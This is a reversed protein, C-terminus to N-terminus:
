FLVSVIVYLQHRQRLMGGILGPPILVRSKVARGGPISCRRIQLFEDIEAVPLLNTYNHIKHRDMESHIIIRKPIIVPRSKIFIRVAVHSPTLPSAAIKHVGAPFDPAKELRRRVVPQFLEMKVTQAHIRHTIQDVPLSIGGAPLVSITNSKQLLHVPPQLIQM